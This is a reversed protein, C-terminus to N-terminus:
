VFISNAVASAVFFQTKYNSNTRVPVVTTTRASLVRFDSIGRSYCSGSAMVVVTIAPGFFFCQKVKKDHKIGLFPKEQGQQGM